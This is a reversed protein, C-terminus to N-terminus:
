QSHDVTYVGLLGSAQQDSVTISLTCASYARLRSIVSQSRCHVRVSCPIAPGLVLIFPMIGVAPVGYYPCFGDRYLLESVAVMIRPSLFFEQM